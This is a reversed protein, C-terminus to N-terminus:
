GVDKGNVKKIKLDIHTQLLVVIGAMILATTVPEVLVERDNNLAAVLRSQTEANDAFEALLLRVAAPRDKVTEDLDPKISLQTQEALDVIVTKLDSPLALEPEAPVLGGIIRNLVLNADRDTL